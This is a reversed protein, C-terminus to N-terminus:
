FDEDRSSLRKNLFWGLPAVIPGLVLFAVAFAPEAPIESGKYGLEWGTLINVVSLISVFIFAFGCLQIILIVFNKLM